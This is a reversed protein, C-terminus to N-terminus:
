PSVLVVTFLSSPAARSIAVADARPVAVVVEATSGDGGAADDPLVALALADRSLTTVRGSVARGDIEEDRPSALVDVSDGPQVLTASNSDALPVAVAVLGTPLGTALERGLLRTATVPEGRALPGTLRRGVLAAPDARAAAPRLSRPWRVVRLDDRTLVRGVPLARAAVVVATTPAPTSAASRSSRTTASELALLLCIGVGCLRPFRGLRPLRRRLASFV